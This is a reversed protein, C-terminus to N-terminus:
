KYVGQRHAVTLVTVLIQKKDIEYIIRYPWARIVYLGEYQGELKKGSFPSTELSKMKKWMRIQDKKPFRDIQKRAKPLVIVTYM